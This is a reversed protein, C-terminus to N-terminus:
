RGTAAVTPIQEFALNGLPYTRWDKYDFHWWELPNVTFGEHELVRRLLGRHYRQLATGGPYDARARTSTEDYTSPMDVVKNNELDYLTVDVAAGRNHKSGQAPNAVLWRASDPTADWFIKTVYWPRYADHVLLTYRLPRLVRNARALAEAAPRQLLARPQEYMKAGLFNNESAYRIDLRITSDLATVDVLESTRFEGTEVPPTAKLAEVRLEEIPRRPTVRMQTEGPAPEINRRPQVLDGVQVSLGRGDADRRFRVEGAVAATALPAEFVSDSKESLPVYNGQHDLIWLRGQQELTYWRKASDAGYEGILGMWRTPVTDPVRAFEFAVQQPWSSEPRGPASACALAVVAPAILSSRSAITMRM